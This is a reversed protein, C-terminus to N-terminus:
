KSEFVQHGQKKPSGMCATIPVGPLIPTLSLRRPNAARSWCSPWLPATFHTSIPVWPWFLGVSWSLSSQCRQGHGPGPRRKIFDTNFEQLKLWKRLGSQALQQVLSVPLCVCPTCVRWCASDCLCASVYTSVYMYVGASVCLCAPVCFCLSVSQMENKCKLCM